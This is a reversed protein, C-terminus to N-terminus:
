RSLEAVSTRLSRRSNLTSRATTQARRTIANLFSADPFKTTGSIQQVRNHQDQSTGVSLGFVRTGNGKIANAVPIAANVAATTDASAGSGIRNPDGDTIFIVVTGLGNGPNVGAATQAETLGAQWNTYMANNSSPISLGNITDKISTADSIPTFDRNVTAATALSTVAIMGRMGALADVFSTGAVKMAPLQSQVSGSIDFTLVLNVGCVAQIAPNSTTAATAQARAKM